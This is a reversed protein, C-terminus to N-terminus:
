WFASHSSLYGSIWAEGIKHQNLRLPFYIQKKDESQLLCLLFASAEMCCSSNLTSGLAGLPLFSNLPLSNHGQACTYLTHSHTQTYPVQPRPQKQM